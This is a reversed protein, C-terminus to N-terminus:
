STITVRYVEAISIYSLFTPVKKKQSLLNIITHKFQEETYYLSNTSMHKYFHEDPDVKDTVFYGKNDTFTFPEFNLSSNIGDAM